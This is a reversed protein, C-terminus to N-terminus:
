DLLGLMWCLEVVARRVPRALSSSSSKGGCVKAPCDLGGGTPTIPVRGVEDWLGTVGFSLGAAGVNLKLNLRVEFASFTFPLSFVTSLNVDEVSGESDEFREIEDSELFDRSEGDM